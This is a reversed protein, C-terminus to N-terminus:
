KKSLREVIKEMWNLNNDEGNTSGDKLPKINENQITTDYYESVQNGIIIQFQGGQYFSGNVFDLSEVSKADIKEPDKVIFRLRTACHTVNEINEEGGIYGILKDIGETVQSM